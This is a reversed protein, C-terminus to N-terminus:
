IEEFQFIDGGRNIVRYHRGKVISPDPVGDELAVFYNDKLELHDFSKFKQEKKSDIYSTGEFKSYWNILPSQYYEYGIIDIDLEKQYYEVPFTNNYFLVFPKQEEYFIKTWRFPNSISLNKFTNLIEKEYSLNVSKLIPPSIGISTGDTMSVVISPFPSTGIDEIAEEWKGLLREQNEYYFLILHPDSMDRGETEKLTIPICSSTTLSNDEKKEGILHFDCASLANNTSIPLNYKQIIKDNDM